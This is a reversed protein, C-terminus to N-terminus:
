ATQTASRDQSTLVGVFILAVAVYQQGTLHEGLLLWGLFITFAPILNVFASAQSVPIRSVGFNYFGYAGLSVFVGLYLIALVGPWDFRTPLVTTPLLLLVAYFAFGVLAQVATLFWPSLTSTLRKLTVIYGTACIMAVFELFNGLLPNPASATARGSVSLWISGAIALVFGGLTRRSIHEKLFLFAAVAVMLPLVASIIGAQSASTNQIAKAEFLFYLCPECLAMFLVYKLEGPRLRVKRLRRPFFLFCFSALGMRGSIVVMPDYATLAVKLAVFSGAWLVMAMVLCAYSVWTANRQM